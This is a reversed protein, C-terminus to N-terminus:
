QVLPVEVYARRARWLTSLLVHNLTTDTCKDPANFRAASAHSGYTFAVSNTCGLGPWVAVPSQPLNPFGALCPTRHNNEGTCQVQCPM